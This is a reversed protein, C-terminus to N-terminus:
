DEKELEAALEASARDYEATLRAAFEDRHAPDTIEGVGKYGLARVSELVFETPLQNILPKMETEWPDTNAEVWGFFSVAAEVPKDIIKSAFDFSLVNLSLKGDRKGISKRSEAWKKFAERNKNFHKGIIAEIAKKQPPTALKPNKDTKPETKSAKKNEPSKESDKEPDDGTPILFTSM